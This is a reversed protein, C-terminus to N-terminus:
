GEKSKGLPFTQKGRSQVIDRSMEQTPFSAITSIPTKNQKERGIGHQLFISGIRSQTM